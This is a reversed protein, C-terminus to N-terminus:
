PGCPRPLPGCPRPMPIRRESYGHKSRLWEVAQRFRAGPQSNGETVEKLSIRDVTLGVVDEQATRERGRARADAQGSRDPKCKTNSVERSCWRCSISRISM